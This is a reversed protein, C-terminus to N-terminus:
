DFDATLYEAPVADTLWIGNASLLFLYGDRQMKGAAVKLVVPKGHRGGVQLATAKDLSLHVHTRSRKELGSKLIQSVSRSATGHYLIEPPIQPMYALDVAVSHGQSARIKLGDGSFAFRKKDTKDVVEQLEERTFKYGYSASRKLLMQVPAWGNSDLALGIEDPKHRLVLSIFKSLRTLEKETLM